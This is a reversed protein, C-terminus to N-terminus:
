ARRIKITGQLNNLSSNSTTVLTVKSGVSVTGGTAIATNLTTSVTIGNIGTISTTGIVLSALCTGAGSIVKFESVSYTYGASLDITYTYAAISNSADQFSITEIMSVFSTPGTAGNIGQPGTAGQLGTNGQNGQTGQNGDNGQPGTNGQNGQPGTAGQLGTNGQNGQTGQEGDNGQAGQLGINGQNGQAGQLGTNGQNGQNGQFGINGQNGQTGQLGTNGQNGQAGQVGVTASGSKVWILNTDLIVLDNVGFSITGSGLNQNGAVSVLYTSGASGTGNIITPTNTSADWFGLYLLVPLLTPQPGQIGQQGQPGLFGQPGIDGQIGQVGTNGQNGQTGQPGLAGQVGTFGQPGVSSYPLDNWHDTGNGIKIFQTNTELGLEGSFLIPNALTWESATARRFQFVGFM